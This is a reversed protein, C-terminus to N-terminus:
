CKANLRSFEECVPVLLLTISLTYEFLCVSLYMSYLACPLLNFCGHQSVSFNRSRYSAVVFTMKKEQNLLWQWLFLEWTPVSGLSISM